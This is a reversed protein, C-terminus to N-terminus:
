LDWNEIDLPDFGDELHLLLQKTNQIKTM